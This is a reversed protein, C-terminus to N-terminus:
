SNNQVGWFHRTEHNKFIRQSAIGILIFEYYPRIPSYYYNIKFINLM